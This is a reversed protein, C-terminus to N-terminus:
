VAIYEFGEYVFQLEQEVLSGHEYSLVPLNTFQVNKVRIKEGAMAPNEPDAVEVILETVFAGKKDDLIQAIRKIFNNNVHYSKITGTLDYDLAKKGKARTGSRKVDEYNIEGGLEVGYVNMLWEGNEYLKGFTGSVTETSKMAM